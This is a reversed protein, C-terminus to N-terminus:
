YYMLGIVFKLDSREIEKNQLLDDYISWLYEKAEEMRGVTNHYHTEIRKYEKKQEKERKEERKQAVAEYKRLLAAEEKAEEVDEELTSIKRAQSFRIKETYKADEELSSILTKQISVTEELEEVKEQEKMVDLNRTNLADQTDALQKQLNKVTNTSELLKSDMDKLAKGRNNCHVEVVKYFSLKEEYEAKIQQEIEKYNEKYLKWLDSKTATQYKM